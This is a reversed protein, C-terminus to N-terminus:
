LLQVTYTHQIVNHAPSTTNQPTPSPYLFHPKPTVKSQGQQAISSLSGQQKSTCLLPREEACYLFLSWFCVAVLLVGRCLSTCLPAGKLFGILEALLSARPRLCGIANVSISSRPVCVVLWRPRYLPTSTDGSRLGGALTDSGQPRSHCILPSLSLHFVLYFVLDFM